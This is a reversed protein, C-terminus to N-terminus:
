KVSTKNGTVQLLQIIHIIEPAKGIIYSGVDVCDRLFESKNKDLDFAQKSIAREFDESCKFTIATDKSMEERSLFGGARSPHEHSRFMAETKDLALPIKIHLAQPSAHGASLNDDKVGGAM